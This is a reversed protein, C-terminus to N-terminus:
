PGTGSDNGENKGAERTAVAQKAPGYQYELLTEVPGLVEDPNDTREARRRAQAGFEGLLTAIEHRRELRTEYLMETLKQSAAHLRGLRADDVSAAQLRQIEAPNLGAREVDAAKLQTVNTVAAEYGDRVKTLQRVRNPTIDVLSIGSADIVVDGVDPNKPDSM